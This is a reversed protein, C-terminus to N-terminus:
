PLSLRKTYQVFVDKRLRFIRFLGYATPGMTFCLSVFLAAQWYTGEAMAHFLILAYLGLYIFFGVLFVPVETIKKYQGTMYYFVITGFIGFTLFGLTLASFGVLLEHLYEITCEDPCSFAGVIAMFVFANIAASGLVSVALMWHHIWGHRRPELEQGDHGFISFPMGDNPLYPIRGRSYNWGHHFEAPQRRKWSFKRKWRPKIRPHM